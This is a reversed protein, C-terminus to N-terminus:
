ISFNDKFDDLEQDLKLWRAEPGGAIVHFNTAKIFKLHQDSIQGAFWLM